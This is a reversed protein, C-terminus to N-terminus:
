FVRHGVKRADELSKQKAASQATAPQGGTRSTETRARQKAADTDSIAASQAAQRVPEAEAAAIITLRRLEKLQDPRPAALFREAFSPENAVRENWLALVGQAHEEFGKVQSKATEMLDTANRTLLDEHTAAYRAELRAELEALRQEAASMTAQQTYAAAGAQDISAWHAFYAQKVDEPSSPDQAVAIWALRRANPDDSGAYQQVEDWTTPVQWPVGWLGPAEEPEPEPAPPPDVGFREYVSPDQQELHAGKGILSVAESYSQGAQRVADLGEHAAFREWAPGFAEALQERTYVEPEAEPAEDVSADDVPAEDVAPELGGEDPADDDAM